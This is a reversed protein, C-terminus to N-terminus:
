YESALLLVKTDGSDLFYFKLNKESDCLDYTMKFLTQTQENEDEKNILFTWKGEANKSFTIYIFDSFVILNDKILSKCAFLIDSILYNYGNDRVYKIGDTYNISKGVLPDYFYGETGTYYGLDTLFIDM